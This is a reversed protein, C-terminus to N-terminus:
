ITGLLSPTNEPCSKRVCNHSLYEGAAGAGRRCYPVSAWVALLASLAYGRAVTDVGFRHGLPALAGGDLSGPHAGFRSRRPEAGLLLGDGHGKPAVREQRQIIAELRPLGRNRM